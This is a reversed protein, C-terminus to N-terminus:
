IENSDSITKIFIRNNKYFLLLFLLLLLFDHLDLKNKYKRGELYVQIM